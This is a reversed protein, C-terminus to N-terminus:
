IIIQVINGDSSVVDVLVFHGHHRIFRRLEKYIPKVITMINEIETESLQSNKLGLRWIWKWKVVFMPFVFKLKKGDDRSIIKIRM